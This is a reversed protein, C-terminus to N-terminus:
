AFRSIVLPQQLKQSLPDSVVPCKAQNAPPSPRAEHLSSQDMGCLDSRRLARNEGGEKRIDVEMVDQVKPKLPPDAPVTPAFRVQETKGIIEQGTELVPCIGLGKTFTEAM